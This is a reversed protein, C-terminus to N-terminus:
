VDPFSIKFITTKTNPVLELTGGHKEIIKKAYFLGIGFGKVDHINGKPIRYFKDFIRERQSKDISKGNDEVTIIIQKKAKGLSINVMEGGYKIANDILNSLANEFHFVDAKCYINEQSKDFVITKTTVMQYKEITSQLLETLNIQEKKLVLQDTDLSATELLKEVMIELKMLQQGSINLYRNTKEKDDVDNFNKIGEIASSITTIPTKFEHTINSILDNKIEDIKKQKNITKLLYLLCFIISLSLALSLLIETLSRKLILVTPDSFAIQLKQNPPLFTTGSFANLPLSDNPKKEFKDFITDAKFHQLSYDVVINKRALERDVSKSLKGYDLSDQFTSIIIKNVLNQLKSISDTARKGKIVKIRSIKSADGHIEINSEPKRLSDEINKWNNEWQITDKLKQPLDFENIEETKATFSFSLAFGTSDLSVTSDKKPKTNKSSQSRKMKSINNTFASDLSIVQIFDDKPIAGNEDVFAMFDNKSDEVYYYEISNDFATQVEKILQIRNEKFNKINWFIQLGITALITITIFVLIYRYKSSKM